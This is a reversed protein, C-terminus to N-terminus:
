KITLIRLRQIMNRGFLLIGLIVLVYGTNKLNDASQKKNEENM